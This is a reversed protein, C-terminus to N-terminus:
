RHKRKALRWANFENDTMKMIDVAENMAASKSISAPSNPAEVKKKPPLSTTKPQVYGKLLEWAEEYRNPSSHLAAALHPRQKLLDELHEDIIELKDPNSSKWAEERTTKAFQIMTEQLEKKNIPEDQSYDPEQQQAQRLQYERLIQNEREYEQRKKREKTLSSLPVMKEEETQRVEEQPTKVVEEQPAKTEEPKEAVTDTM